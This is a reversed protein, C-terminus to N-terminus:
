TSNVSTNIIYDHDFSKTQGLKILLPTLPGTVVLSLNIYKKISFNKHFDSPISSNSSILFNFSTLNNSKYIKSEM